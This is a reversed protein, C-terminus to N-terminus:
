RSMVLGTLEKAPLRKLWAPKWPEPKPQAAQIRRTLPGPAPRQEVNM